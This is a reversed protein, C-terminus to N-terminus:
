DARRRNGSGVELPIYSYGFLGGRSRCLQYRGSRCDRCHGCPILAEVAVRDGVDVGWRRAATDGIKEIVGLPEHGPVLPLRVPLVGDYQELDSGCIGCAEVRLIATDDTVDPVRLERMELKKPATQVIARSKM